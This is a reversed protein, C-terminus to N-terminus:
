LEPFPFALVDAIHDTDSLLMILRDVGLAIGGSPPVGSRLADLFSEDIAYEPAGLSARKASESELRNRQEAPDNLETFANALEIGAIYVEFREAIEPSDTSRKALAAMSAPYDTLITPRPSGLNPEIQDLFIKFFASDFDDRDDLSTSKSTKASALFAGPDGCPDGDVDSYRCFAERVSLREWPTSVDVDIRRFTLRTSGTVRKAVHAVLSETDAAIERYDSYARYWELMTFEPNHFTSPAEDRFSKCLQYIRELGESLLRKMAYEPSTPLYLRRGSESETEFARLHPEMGPSRILLPTEVEIFGQRDFFTRIERLVVARFRHARLRDPHRIDPRRLKDPRQASAIASRVLVKLSTNEFTGNRWSGAIEVITGAVLGKEAKLRVSGTEDSLYFSGRDTSIRGALVCPRDPRLDAIRCTRSTRSPFNPHPPDTHPM